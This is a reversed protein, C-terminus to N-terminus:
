KKGWRNSLKRIEAMQEANKTGGTITGTDVVKEHTTFRIKCNGCTFRRRVHDKAHRTGICTAKYKCEPCNM